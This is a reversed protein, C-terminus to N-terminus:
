KKSMFMAAQLRAAARKVKTLHACYLARVLGTVKIHPHRSRCVHSCFRVAAFAYYWKPM